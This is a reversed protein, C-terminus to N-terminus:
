KYNTEVILWRGDRKELKWENRASSRDNKMVFHLTGVATAHTPDTLTVNLDRITASILNGSKFLRTMAEAYKEKDIKARAARSDIMADDAFQALLLKLDDKNSAEATNQIVKKIAAEEESPSQAAALPSSAALTAFVILAVLKPM